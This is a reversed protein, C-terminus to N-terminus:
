KNITNQMGKSGKNEEKVSFSELRYTVCKYSSKGFCFTTSSHIVVDEDKDLPGAMSM